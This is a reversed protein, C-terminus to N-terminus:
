LNTAGTSCTASVRLECIWGGFAYAPPRPRSPPQRPNGAEYSDCEDGGSKCEIKRSDAIPIDAPTHRRNVRNGNQWQLVKRTVRCLIVEGVSHGVRQNRLQCLETRQADDRARGGHM